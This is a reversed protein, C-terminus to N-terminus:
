FRFDFNVSNRKGVAFPVLWAFDFQDFRFHRKVPLDFVVAAVYMHQIATRWTNGFKLLPNQQQRINM